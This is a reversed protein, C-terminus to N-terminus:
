LIECLNIEIERFYIQLEKRKQEKRSDPNGNDSNVDKRKKTM